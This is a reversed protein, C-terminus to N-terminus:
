REIGVPYLRHMADQYPSRQYFWRLRARPDAAFSEDKLAENFEVQLAPDAALMKAALPEIVYGEIYETANLVPLFYGWAFLSDESQPEMLAVVLASLEQDTSIRISGPMFVHQRSEIRPTGSDVLTRGEFNSSAIKADDLRYFEMTRETPQRIEEYRIGHRKLVEIADTWGADLWYAKPTTVFATPKSPVQKITLNIPLGTWRIEQRGSIPSEYNEHSVAAFEINRAREEDAQHQFGFSEQRQAKDGERATKLAAKHKGSTELISEILVYTGLVRQKYPKLSHNEILVSAMHRLDGYGHSFRPSAHWDSIGESLDRNNNAFILPGPLHGAKKLAKDLAPQLQTRLWGATRPSVAFRDNFGYTIDYQYDIGDTVHVDIYVDPDLRQLLRLMAQMEISDAKMYDRNLNLNQATTRWGMDNPGRQNVRNNGGRREHGDVNFVPVFYFDSNDLLATKKGLAIDRLLMLGADKGDIEGAHIGAQILVRANPSRLRKNLLPEPNNSAIVLLLPRGQASRGFEQIQILPSQRQLRRLYAITDDYNPTTAFQSQEAPTIWEAPVDNLLKESEGQWPLAPPLPAEIASVSASFLLTCILLNKM